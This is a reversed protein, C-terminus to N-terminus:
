FSQQKSRKPHPLAVDSQYPVSRNPRCWSEGILLHRRLLTSTLPTTRIAGLVRSTANVNRVYESVSLLSVSIPTDALRSLRILVLYTYLLSEVPRTTNGCSCCLSEFIKM